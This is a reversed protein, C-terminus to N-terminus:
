NNLLSNHRNVTGNLYFTAESIVIQTVFNPHDGTLEGSTMLLDCFELRRDPDDELLEQVAQM